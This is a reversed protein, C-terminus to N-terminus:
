RIKVKVAKSMAEYNKTGAATVRISLTYKRKKLGKKVTLKGTKQNVKFYKKSSAPKVIKLSYTVTGKGQRVTIAKSRKIKNAKNWKISVKRGKAYLTNRAKIIKFSVSVSGGYKGIGDVIANATGVNVNNEYRVTYDVGETLRHGTLLLSSGKM